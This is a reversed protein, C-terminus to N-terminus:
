EWFFGSTLYDNIMTREEDFCSIDFDGDACLIYGSLTNIQKIECLPRGKHGIDEDVIKYFLTVMKTMNSSGLFSGNSGSSELQPMSANLTNYIGDAITSVMGGIDLRSAKSVANASASIATTATGLYDVGIQAIQIPVGLMFDRQTFLITGPTRNRFFEARCQGTILDIRYSIQLTDGDKFLAGDLPVSGFRGFVSRISYPAYNLYTGRTAAQPHVPLTIANEQKIVTTGTLVYSSLTYTWWGIPISTVAEKNTIDSASLPIWTCSAIYQYPNYMTKLVQTSMDTILTTPPTAGDTIGMVALNDDSLLKNKLSGFQSSTMAYYTVAGVSHYSNGSIIGVIYLGSSISDPTFPNANEYVSSEIDTTAPYMTDTIEGNFNTTNSDTRLVYHSSTGIVTKYSALVDVSMSIEWFPEIWKVDNVFYYRGFKSIYAYTYGYPVTDGSPRKIQVVPNLVSCPEKLTGTVSWSTAGPAPQKTSNKKKSLGYFIIDM